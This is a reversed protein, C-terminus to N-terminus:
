GLYADLEAAIKDEERTAMIQGFVEQNVFYVQIGFTKMAALSSDYVEKNLPVIDHQSVMETDELGLQPSQAFTDAPVTYIAGGSDRQAYAEPDACIIIRPKSAGPNMLTAIGKTALYMAALGKDATAFVYDGTYVDKSLTRQPRIIALNKDPSAHYLIDM